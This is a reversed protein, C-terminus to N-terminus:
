EGKFLKRAFEVAKIYNEKTPEGFSKSDECYGTYGYDVVICTNMVLIKGRCNLKPVSFDYRYPRTFKVVFDWDKPEFYEIRSTHMNVVWDAEEKTEFLINFTYKIFNTQKAVISAECFYDDEIYDITKDINIESVYGGYTTYITKNQEILEELREKTIM